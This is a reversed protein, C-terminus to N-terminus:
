YTSVSDRTLVMCALTSRTRASIDWAVLSASM